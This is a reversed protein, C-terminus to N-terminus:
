VIPLSQLSLVGHVLAPTVIVLALIEPIWQFSRREPEQQKGSRWSKPQNTQESTHEGTQPNAQQNTQESTRENTNAMANM